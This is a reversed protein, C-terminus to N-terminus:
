MRLRSLDRVPPFFASRVIKAVWLVGLAALAPAVIGAAQATLPYGFTTSWLLYLMPWTAATAFLLFPAGLRMVTSRLVQVAIDPAPNPHDLQMNAARMERLMDVTREIRVPAVSTEHTKLQM